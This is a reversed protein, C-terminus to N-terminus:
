GVRWVKTARSAPAFEIHNEGPGILLGDGIGVAFSEGYDASPVVAVDGKRIEGCGTLPDGLARTAGFADALSGDARKLLDLCDATNRWTVPVVRRGTTAEVAAIWFAACDNEGIEFPKRAKQNVFARFRDSWDPLRVLQPPPILAMHKETM